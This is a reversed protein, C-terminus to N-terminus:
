ERPRIARLHQGFAANGGIGKRPQRDGPLALFAHRFGGTQHASLAAQDHPNGVVPRDGPADGLGAMRLAGVEGEGILAVGQLLPNPREGLLDAPAHDAVAVDGLGRGDVGSKRGDFGM